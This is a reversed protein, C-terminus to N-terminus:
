TDKSCLAVSLSVVAVLLSYTMTKLGDIHNGAYAYVTSAPLSALLRNSYWGATSAAERDPSLVSEVMIGSTCASLIGALFVVTWMCGVFLGFSDLYPVVVAVISAIISLCM